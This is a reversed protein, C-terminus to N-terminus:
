ADIAEYWEGITGEIKNQVRLPVMAQDIALMALKLFDSQEFDSCLEILKDAPSPISAPAAEAADIEILAAVDDPHSEADDTHYNPATM